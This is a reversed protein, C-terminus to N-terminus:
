LADLGTVVLLSFRFPRPVDTRGFSHGLDHGFAVFGPYHPSHSFDSLQDVPWACLPRRICRAIPGVVVLIPEM